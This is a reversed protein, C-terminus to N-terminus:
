AVRVWIKESNSKILQRKPLKPTKNIKIKNRVSVVRHLNKDSVVQQLCKLTVEWFKKILIMTMEQATPKVSIIWKRRKLKRSSCWPLYKQCQKLCEKQHPNRVQDKSKLCQFYQNRFIRYIERLKNQILSLNEIKIMIKEWIKRIIERLFRDMILLSKM